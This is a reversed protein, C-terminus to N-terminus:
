LQIGLANKLSKSIFEHGTSFRDKITIRGIKLTWTGDSFKTITSVPATEDPIFVQQRFVGQVKMTFLVDQRM